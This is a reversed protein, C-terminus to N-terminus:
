LPLGTEPNIRMVRVVGNPMLVKVEYVAAGSRDIVQKAGVVRGGTSAELQAMVMQMPMRARRKVDHGDAFVISRDVFPTVFAGPGGAAFASAAGTLLLCVLALCSYRKM